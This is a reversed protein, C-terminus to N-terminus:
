MNYNYYYYYFFVQSKHLTWMILCFDVVPLIKKKQYSLQYPILSISIYQALINKHLLIYNCSNKMIVVMKGRTLNGGVGGRTLFKSNKFVKKQPSKKADKEYM